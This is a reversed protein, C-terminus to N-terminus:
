VKLTRPSYKGTKPLIVKGERRGTGSMQKDIKLVMPLGKLKPLMKAMDPTAMGAAFLYGKSKIRASAAEQQKDISLMLVSLGKAKQMQWLAKLAAVAGCLFPAM